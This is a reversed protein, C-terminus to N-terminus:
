PRFGPPPQIPQAGPPFAPGTNPRTPDEAFTPQSQRVGAPLTNNTPIAQFTPPAGGVGAPAPGGAPNLPGGPAPNNIGFNQQNTQLPTLGPQPNTPFPKNNGQWQQTQGQNALGGSAPNVTSGGFQRPKDPGNNCGVLAVGALLLVSLSRRSQFGM